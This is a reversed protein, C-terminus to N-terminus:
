TASWFSGTEGTDDDSLAEVRLFSVPTAAVSSLLFRHGLKGVDFKVQVGEPRAEDPLPELPHADGAREQQPGDVRGDAVNFSTHNATDAPQALADDPLKFAPREHDNM